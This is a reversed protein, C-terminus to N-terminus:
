GSDSGNPAITLSPAAEVDQQPVPQLKRLTVQACDVIEPENVM